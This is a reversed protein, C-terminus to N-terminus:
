KKYDTFTHKRCMFYGWLIHYPELFALFGSQNTRKQNLKHLHSYYSFHANIVAFTLRFQGKLFFMFGALGDLCLRFFIFTVLKPKPLHKHLLFLNNRFNLYTKFPSNKSLTGAGVHYVVSQPVCKIGYGLMKLRVCLDIEEMHAFFDEDFGGVQHFIAAKIALCAGSAWTIDIPMDYQGNDDEVTDFIRGRCFPYGMADLYGGCAGAYEFQNKHYFNKIKPQCAAMNESSLLTNVLPPLWGKSVEVDSNLLVYIDAEIQKLALNYGRCFGENHTLKIMSVPYCNQTVWEVSGDTSGNDVVYVSAEPTNDIITPVFQELFNKGNWNLIVVAIKCNNM